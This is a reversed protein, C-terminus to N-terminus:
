APYIGRSFVKCVIEETQAQPKQWPIDQVGTLGSINLLLFSQTRDGRSSSSTEALPYRSSRGLRIYGAPSFM